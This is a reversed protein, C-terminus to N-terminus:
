SEITPSRRRARWRARRRPDHQLLAVHGQAELLRQERRQRHVLAAGEELLEVALGGLGRRVIDDAGLALQARPQHLGAAGGEHILRRDGEVIRDAEDTARAGDDDVGGDGVAGIGDAAVLVGDLVEDLAHAPVVDVAGLQDGHAVRGLADVAVDLGPAVGADEDGGAGLVVREFADGDVGGADVADGDRFGRPVDEPLTDAHHGGM